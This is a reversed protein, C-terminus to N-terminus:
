AVRHAGQRTLNVFDSASLKCVSTNILLSLKWIVFFLHEVFAIDDNDDYCTYCTVNDDNGGGVHSM